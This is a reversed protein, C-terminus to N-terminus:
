GRDFHFGEPKVTLVTCTSQHIIKEATTGLLLFNLGSRGRTGLVVLDFGHELAYHTIGTAVSHSKEIHTAFELDAQDAVLPVVFHDLQEQAAIVMEEDSISGTGIGFYDAIPVRSSFPQYINLFEISAGDLSAIELAEKAARKSNDSFDICVLIKQFRDSHPLDGRVLLVDVPAKRVCKSAIMGVRLPDAGGGHAGMVLLEPRITKVTTLIEEFPHGLTLHLHVRDIREGIQREVFEHLRKRTEVMMGVEDIEVREILGELIRSDVVHIVSLKTGRADSLRLAQHLAQGSSESFDVAALTYPIEKM